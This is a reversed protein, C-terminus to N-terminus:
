FEKDATDTIINETKPPEPSKQRKRCFYGIILLATPIGTIAFKTPLDFLAFMVMGFWGLHPTFFILLYDLDWIHSAAVLGFLIIFPLLYSLINYAISKTVPAKRGTYIYAFINFATHVILPLWLIIDKNLAVNPLFTSISMYAYELFVFMWNILCIPLYAVAIYIIRKMYINM